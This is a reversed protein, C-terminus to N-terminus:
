MFYTGNMSVTLCITPGHSSCSYPVPLCPFPASVASGNVRAIQSTTSIYPPTASTASLSREVSFDDPCVQHM